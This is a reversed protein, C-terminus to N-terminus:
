ESKKVQDRSRRICGTCNFFFSNLFIYVLILVDGESFYEAEDFLAFRPKYNHSLLKMQRKVFLKYAYRLQHRYNYALHWSNQNAYIAYKYITKAMIEVFTKRSPTKENNKSNFILKISVM